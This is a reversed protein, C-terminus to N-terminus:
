HRIAAQSPSRSADRHTVGPRPILCAALGDARERYYRVDSRYLHQLDPGHDVVRRVYAVLRPWSPFGHDRALRFQAESLAVANERALDKAQKRLQGLDPKAPLAHM